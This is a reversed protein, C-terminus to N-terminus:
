CALCPNIRHSSVLSLLNSEVLVDWLLHWWFIALPQKDWDPITGSKWFLEPYQSPPWVPFLPYSQTMPSGTLLITQWFISVAELTTPFSLLSVIYYLIEANERIYHHDYTPWLRCMAYVINNERTCRRRWGNIVCSEYTITNNRM